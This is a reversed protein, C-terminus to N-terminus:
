KKRERKKKADELIKARKRNYEKVDGEDFLHSNGPTLTNVMSETLPKLLLNVVGKNMDREFYAIAIKGPKKAHPNDKRVVTNALGSIFSRSGQEKGEEAKKLIEVSLDSYYFKVTGLAESESGYMNFSFEDLQGTLANIGLAPGIMTNLEKLQIPGVSGNYSFEGHLQALPFNVTVELPAKGQLMFDGKVKMIEEQFIAAEENSVNIVKVAGDKLSIIGPVDKKEPVEEYQLNIGVIDISDILMPLKLSTIAQHPLKPYKSFDFPVNKDRYINIEPNVIRINGINVELKEFIASTHIDSAIISDVKVDFRDTQSGNKWGFEKKTFNPKLMFDTIALLSDSYDLEIAGTTLTYLEGPLLFKNEELRVMGEDFGLDESINFKEDLIVTIGTLELNYNDSFLFPEKDRESLYFNGDVIRISELDLSELGTTAEDKKSVTKKRTHAEPLQYNIEPSRIVISSVRLQKKLILKFLKLNTLSVRSVTLDILPMRHLSDPRNEDFMISDPTVTLDRVSASFTFLNVSVKNFDIVHGPLPDKELISRISSEAIPSTILRVIIFLVIIIGVIIGLLIFLKKM